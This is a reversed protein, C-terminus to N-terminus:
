EAGTSRPSSKRVRLTQVGVAPPSRGDHDEDVAAIRRRDVRDASYSPVRKGRSPTTRTVRVVPEADGAEEVDRSRRGFGTQESTTAASRQTPSVHAAKAAVGVVDGEEATAPAVM